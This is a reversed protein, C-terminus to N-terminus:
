YDEEIDTDNNEFTNDSYTTDEAGEQILIGYEHGAIYNDNVENGTTDEFVEDFAYISTVRVGAHENDTIENNEVMVLHSLYVLIGDGNGRTDHDNAVTGSVENNRVSSEYQDDIPEDSNREHNIKYVLIGTGENDEVINDEVTVSLTNGGDPGGYLIIGGARENWFNNGSVHCGKVTVHGQGEVTSGAHYIGRETNDHVGTDIIEGYAYFSIGDGDNESSESDTILVDKSNRVRIGDNENNHSYVNDIVIGNSYAYVGRGGFNRVEFNKIEVNDANVYIGHDNIDTGELVPNDLGILRIGEKEIVLNEEYTGGKVYITDGENADDIADQISDGESLIIDEDISSLTHTVSTGEATSYQGHMHGYPIEVEYNIDIGDVTPGDPMWVPDGTDQDYDGEVDLTYDDTYVGDEEDYYWAEGDGFDLQWNTNSRILIYPQDGNENEPISFDDGDLTEGPKGSAVGDAYTTCLDHFDNVSVAVSDSDYDGETGYVTATIEWPGARWMNEGSPLEFTGEYTAEGENWGDEDIEGEVTLPGVYAEGAALGGVYEFTFKVEDVANEHGPATVNAEVDVDADYDYEACTEPSIIEITPGVYDVGVTVDSDESEGTVIGVGFATGIVLVIPVLYVLLKKEM